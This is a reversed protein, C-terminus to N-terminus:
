LLTIGDVPHPSCQKRVQSSGQIGRTQWKCVGRRAQDSWGHWKEQSAMCMFSCISVHCCNFLYSNNPTDFYNNSSIDDDDRCVFLMVHKILFLSLIDGESSLFNLPLCAKFILSVVSWWQSWFLYFPLRWPQDEHCLSTWSYCKWSLQLCDYFNNTEESKIVLATM